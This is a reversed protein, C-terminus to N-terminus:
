DGIGVLKGSKSMMDNRLAGSIKRLNLYDENSARIEEDLENGMKFAIKDPVFKLILNIPLSILGLL